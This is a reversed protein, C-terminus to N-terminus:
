QGSITKIGKSDVDRVVPAVSGEGVGIVVNVDVKHYQRVYDGHWSANADPVKKSALAAAKLLLDNVSIKEEDPLQANIKKRVDFLKSLVLDVTLYYHPVNQKAYTSRAAIELSTQSLPYDTFDTGSIPVVTAAAPAAAPKAATAPAAAKVPPVFERIDAGIIRGQPGTGPVQHCCDVCVYLVGPSCDVHQIPPHHYQVQSIDVGKENALTKALPSAIVRGGHGTNSPTSAGAPPAAPPPIQGDILIVIGLM